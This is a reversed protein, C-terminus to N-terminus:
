ASGAVTQQTSSSSAAAAYVALGTSNCRLGLMCSAMVHEDGDCGEALWCDHHM